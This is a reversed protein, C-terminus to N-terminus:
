IVRSLFISFLFLKLILYIFTYDIFHYGVISEEILFYFKLLSFQM